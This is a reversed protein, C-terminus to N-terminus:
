RRPRTGNRRVVTELAEGEHDIALWLYCLKDNIKLFVEDLHRRWQTFGRM